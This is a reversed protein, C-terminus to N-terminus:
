KHQCGRHTCWLPLVIGSACCPIMVAFVVIILIVGLSHIWDQVGYATLYLIASTSSLLVHVSHSYETSKEVVDPVAFGAVVGLVAFPIILEPHELVCIHIQMHGGLLLHGGLFPFVADSLGCIGISGLFGVLIAKLMRKEHKWFMATTTIASFLIHSTHTVHFFEGAAPALLDEARALTAFFTFVGMLLLGMSVGFITYPLHRGLELIIYQAKGEKQM